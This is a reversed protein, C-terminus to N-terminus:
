EIVTRRAADQFGLGATGSDVGTSEGHNVQVRAFRCTIGRVLPYPITRTCTLSSIRGLAM